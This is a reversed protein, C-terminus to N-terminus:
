AARSGSDGGIVIRTLNHDFEQGSKVQIVSSRSFRKEHFNGPLPSTLRMENSLLLTRLRPNKGKLFVASGNSPEAPLKILVQM